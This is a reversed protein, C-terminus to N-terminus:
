QHHVMSSLHAWACARVGLEIYCGQTPISDVYVMGYLNCCVGKMTLVEM